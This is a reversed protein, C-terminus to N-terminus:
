FIAWTQGDKLIVSYIFRDDNQAKEKKLSKVDYNKLKLNKNRKGNPMDRSRDVTLTVKGRKSVLDMIVAGGEETYNTVRVRGNRKSSANKYFRDLQDTHYRKNGVCVVDGNNMAIKSSYQAPLTAIDAYGCGCFLVMIVCAYVIMQIKAKM